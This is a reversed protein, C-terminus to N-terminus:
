TASEAQYLIWRQEAGIAYVVYDGGRWYREQREPRFHSLEVPLAGGARFGPTGVDIPLGYYSHASLHMPKARFEYGLCTGLVGDNDGDRPNRLVSLAVQSLAQRIFLVELMVRLWRCHGHLRAMLVSTVRLIRGM